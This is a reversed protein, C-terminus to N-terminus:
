PCRVRRVKGIVLEGEDTLRLTTQDTWDQGEGSYDASVTLRDEGTARTKRVRGESEYYLIRSATITVADQDGSQGCSAASTRWDGRFRSPIESGDGGNTPAKAKGGDLGPADRRDAEIETVGGREKSDTRTPKEPEGSCAALTSLAAVLAFTPLRYRRDIM